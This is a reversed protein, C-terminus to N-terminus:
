KESSLADLSKQLVARHKKDTNWIKEVADETLNIKRGGLADAVISCASPTLGKSRRARNRTATIGTEKVIANVASAIAFNRTWPIRDRANEVTIRAPHRLAVVVLRRLAPPLPEDREISDAALALLCEVLLRVSSFLPSDRKICDVILELLAEDGDSMRRRPEWFRKAEIRMSHRDSEILAGVTLPHALHRQALQRARTVIMEDAPKVAGNRRRV